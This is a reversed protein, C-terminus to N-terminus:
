VGGWGGVGDYSRSRHGDDKGGRMGLVGRSDGRVRGPQQVGKRGRRVSEGAAVRYDHRSVGHDRRGDRPVRGVRVREHSRPRLEELEDEDEELEAEYKRQPPVGEDDDNFEAESTDESDDERAM